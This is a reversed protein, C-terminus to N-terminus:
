SFLSFERSYMDEDGVQQQMEAVETQSSPAVSSHTATTLQDPLDPAKDSSQIDASMEAQQLSRVQEEKQCLQQQLEAKERDKTHIEEEKQLTVIAQDKVQIDHELTAIRQQLQQEAAIRAQDRMHIQGELDTKMQSLQQELFDAQM